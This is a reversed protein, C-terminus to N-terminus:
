NKPSKENPAPQTTGERKTKPQSRLTEDLIKRMRPQLAQMGEAAMAPMERLIKQGTATSYFAIMADVDGKTLHKQYVPVMDDMMDTVPVSEIMQESRADIEALQDATINPDTKKAQERSMSRMQMTVQRMVQQMQERIQMVEFLKLIDERTAQPDNAISVPVQATAASICLLLLLLFKLPKMTNWDTMLLM